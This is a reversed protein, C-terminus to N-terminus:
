LLSLYIKIIDVYVLDFNQPSYRHNYYDFIHLALTLRKLFISPLFFIFYKEKEYCFSNWANTKCICFIQRKTVVITKRYGKCTLLIKQTLKSRLQTYFTSKAPQNINTCRQYKNTIQLMITNNYCYVLLQSFSCNCRSM